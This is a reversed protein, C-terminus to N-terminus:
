RIFRARITKKTELPEFRSFGSAMRDLEEPRTGSKFIRGPPEDWLYFTGGDHLIRRIEALAAGRDEFHHISFASFALDVCGTPIEALDEAKATVVRVNGLGEEAARERIQGSRKPDPEVSYVFGSTGVVTASAITFYGEGAGIDAVKMGEGVGMTRVAAFPEQFLSRIREGFTKKMPADAQPFSESCNVTPTEAKHTRSCSPKEERGGVPQFSAGLPLHVSRYRNFIDTESTMIMALFNRFSSAPKSLTRMEETTPTSASDCQLTRASMPWGTVSLFSIIM